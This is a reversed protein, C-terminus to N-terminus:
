LSRLTPLSRGSSLGTKREAADFNGQRANHNDILAPRCEVQLFVALLRYSEAGFAAMFGSIAVEFSRIASM